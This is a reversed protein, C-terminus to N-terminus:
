LTAAPTAVFLIDQAAGDNHVVCRVPCPPFHMLMPVQVYAQLVKVIALTQFSGGLTNVSQFELFANTGNNSFASVSVPGEYWYNMPITRTSNAGYAFNDMFIPGITQKADYKTIPRSVGLIGYRTGFDAPGPAISYSLTITRGLTPLAISAFDNPDVIFVSSTINELTSTFGAWAVTIQVYSTASFNQFEIVVGPWTSCDFTPGTHNLTAAVDESGINDASPIRYKSWDQYAPATM